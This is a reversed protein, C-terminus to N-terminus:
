QECYSHLGKLIKFNDNTNFAVETGDMSQWNSNDNIRYWGNATNEGFGWNMYFQNEYEYWEKIVIGLFKKTVKYIQERYGDCFWIHSESTPSDCLFVVGQTSNGGNVNYQINRVFEEFSFLQIDANIFGLSHAAMLFDSESINGYENLNFHSSVANIKEISPSIKDDSNFNYSTIIHPGLTRQQLDYLVMSMVIIGCNAQGCVSPCWKDLAIGTDPSIFPVGSSEKSRTKTKIDISDVLEVIYQFGTKGYGDWDSDINQRRKKAQDVYLKLLVNLQIESNFSYNGESSMALISLDYNSAGLVIYGQNNSYNISYLLTDGNETYISIDELKRAPFAKTQCDVSCDLLCALDNSLMEVENLSFITPSPTKFEEKSCAATVLCCALFLASRKM